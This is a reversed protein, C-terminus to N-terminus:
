ERYIWAMYIQANERKKQTGEQNSQFTKKVMRRQDTTILQKLWGVRRTLICYSNSKHTHFINRIRFSSCLNFTNSTLTNLISNTTLLLCNPTYYTIRRHIYLTIYPGNRTLQLSNAQINNAAGSTAHLLNTFSYLFFLLLRCFKHSIGNFKWAFYCFEPYPHVRCKEQTPLSIEPEM